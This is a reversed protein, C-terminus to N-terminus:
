QHTTCDTTTVDTGQDLTFPITLMQTQGGPGAVTITISSTGFSGVTFPSIAGGNADLTIPSTMNLGQGNFLVSGTPNAGGPDGVKVNETSANSNTIFM